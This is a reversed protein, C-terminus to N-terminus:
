KFCFASSFGIEEVLSLTERFDDESEGPFGVIFDTSITLSPKVKRLAEVRSVFYARTYRRAMRRLIKTSGSQVPLHIHSALVDLEAHARILADTLHRPHPSTYRLRVLGPVEQALRYLLKPFESESVNRPNGEDDDLDDVPSEPEHWSNVTQGLLVIERAGKAVLRQAERVIESSSRYREPGRTIPVICFTCRENCGKMITLFASVPTPRGLAEPDAELFRPDHVDFSTRVIQSSVGHDMSALKAIDGIHDPGLVWDVHPAREFLAQGEQQAVCGTVAIKLEPRKAKLAKLRGLMSRLKHEAKERVSCTQIVILDASEAESTPSWGARALAEEMRLGDHVNM